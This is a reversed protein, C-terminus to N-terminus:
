NINSLTLTLNGDKFNKRNLKYTEPVALIKFYITDKAYARIEISEEFENVTIDSVSKVEPLELEIVLNSGNKFMRSVPEKTQKAADHVKDLSPKIKPKPKVDKKEESGDGFRKVEVKPNGDEGNSIKIKIGSSRIKPSEFDGFLENFNNAEGAERSFLDKFDNEMNKIIKFPNFSFVSGLGLFNTKIKSGCKPCYEWKKDIDTGCNKCRM